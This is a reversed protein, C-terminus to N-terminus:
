LYGSVGYGNVKIGEERNENRGFRGILHDLAVSEALGTHGAKLHSEVARIKNPEDKFTSLHWKYLKSDRLM